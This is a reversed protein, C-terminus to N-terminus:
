AHQEHARASTQPTSQNPESAFLWSCMTSISRLLACIHRPLM